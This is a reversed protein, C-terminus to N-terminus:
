IGKQVKVGAQMSAHHLSFNTLNYINLMLTKKNNTDKQGIQELVLAFMVMTLSLLSKRGQENDIAENM